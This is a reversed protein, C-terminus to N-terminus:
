RSIVRREASTIRIKATANSMGSSKKWGLISSCMVLKLAM